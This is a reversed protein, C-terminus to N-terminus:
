QCTSNRMPPARDMRLATCCAEILRDVLDMKDVLLRHRHRDPLVSADYSSVFIFPLHRSALEDAVPISDERQLKIDLCALEVPQADLLRLAAAVTHAPGVVIAGADSLMDSIM